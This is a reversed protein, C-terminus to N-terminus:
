ARSELMMPVRPTYPSPLAPLDPSPRLRWRQALTALTLLIELRALGEGICGHPGAGFPFYAFRPRSSSASEAWREPRFAIPDEYFRPDRHTILPSLLMYSNARVRVGNLDVDALPRRDIYHVAPYLRLAEAFVQQLYALRALDEGEPPRGALVDSLEAHVHSEVEPHRGILFWTWLLSEPTTDVSSILLSIVEDLIQTDSLGAARLRRVLDGGRLRAATKAARRRARLVRPRPIPLRPIAHLLIGLAEALEDEEPELDAEFLVDATLKLTLRRMDSRLELTDGDRWDRAHRQIRAVMATVQESLKRRAFSPNEVARRELHAEGERTILCDHMVYRGRVSWKGEGYRDSETVLIRQILEPDTVFTFHTFGAKFQIVGSENRRDAFFAIPDRRFARGARLAPIWSSM